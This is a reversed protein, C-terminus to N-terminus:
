IKGASGSGVKRLVVVQVGSVFVLVAIKLLACWLVRDCTRETLDRHTIEQQKTFRINRQITDYGKRMAITEEYLPLLEQDTLLEKEGKPTTFEFSVNKPWRDFAKFCLRHKGKETSILEFKGERTKPPSHYLVQRSPTEVRVMVNNEGQGSVIYAGSFAQNLTLDLGICREQRYDLPFYLASVCLGLLSILRM